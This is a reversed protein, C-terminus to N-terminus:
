AEARPAHTQGVRTKRGFWFMHSLFLCCVLVGLRRESKRLRAKAKPKRAGDKIVVVPVLKRMFVRQARTQQVTALTRSLLVKNKCRIREFTCISGGYIQPINPQQTNGRAGGGMASAPQVPRSASNHGLRAGEIDTLTLSLAVTHPPCSYTERGREKIRVTQVM